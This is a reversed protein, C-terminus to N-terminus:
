ARLYDPEWKQIMKKIAKRDTVKDDLVKRALVPLEGDSAFRLAILQSATFESIRPRLEPPLLQQLRLRMELRIVRDQVALAFLRAYLAGLAFALALLVAFASSWSFHRVCRVISWVVNIGFVPLVFFHFLPVLKVHNQFNQPKSM